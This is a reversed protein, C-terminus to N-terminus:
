ADDAGAANGAVGACAAQVATLAAKHRALEATLAANSRWADALQANLLEVARQEDALQTSLTTNCHQLQAARANASSVQASYHHARAVATNLRAQLVAADGAPAAGAGPAAAALAAAAAADAADRKRKQGLKRKLVQEARSLAQDKAAALSPLTGEYPFGLGGYQAIREADEQTGVLWLSIKEAVGERFLVVWTQVGGGSSQLKRWEGKSPTPLATIEDLIQRNSKAAPAAPGAAPSTAAFLPQPSLSDRASARASRNPTTDFHVSRSCMQRLCLRVPSARTESPATPTRQRARKPGGGYRVCHLALMRANLVACRTMM